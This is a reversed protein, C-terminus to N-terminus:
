SLKNYQPLFLVNNEHIALFKDLCKAWSHKNLEARDLLISNKFTLAFHNFQSKNGKM